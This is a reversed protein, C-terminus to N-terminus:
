KSGVKKILDYIRYNQKDKFIDNIELCYCFIYFLKDEEVRTTNFYLEILNKLKYIKTYILILHEFYDKNKFELVDGTQIITEWVPVYIVFAMQRINFDMKSLNLKEKLVEINALTMEDFNEVLDKEISDIITKRLGDRISTLEAVINQISTKKRSSVLIKELFLSSGFGLFAGIASNIVDFISIEETLKNMCNYINENSISCSTLFFCFFLVILLVKKM